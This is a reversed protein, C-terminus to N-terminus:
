NSRDYCTWREVMKDNQLRVFSMGELTQKEGQRTMTITERLAVLDDEAILSIIEIHFDPMAALTKRVVDSIADPGRLEPHAHDTYDDALVAAALEPKNENWMEAYNRVTEKNSETNM